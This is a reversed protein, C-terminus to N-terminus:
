DDSLSNLGDGGESRTRTGPDPIRWTADLEEGIGQMSNSSEHLRCVGIFRDTWRFGIRVPYVSRPSVRVRRRRLAAQRRARQDSKSRRLRQAECARM